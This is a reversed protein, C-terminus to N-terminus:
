ALMQAEHGKAKLGDGKFAGQKKGVATFYLTVHAPVAAANITRQGTLFRLGGNQWAAILVAAGLLLAVALTRKRVFSLSQHSTM